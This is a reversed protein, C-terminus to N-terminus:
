NHHDRPTPPRPIHRVQLGSVEPWFTLCTLKSPSFQYSPVPRLQHLYFAAIATALGVPCFSFEDAHVVLAVGSLFHVM